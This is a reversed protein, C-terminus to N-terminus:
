RLFTGLFLQAFHSVTVDGAALPFPASLRDSNALLVFVLNRNPLVLLLSSYADPLLSFSWVVPEGRYVQVFWGLGTPVPRGTSTTQRTWARVRSADTVLVGDLVATAFAAVDRASAVLGTSATLGVAKRVAPTTRGRRDVRYSTAAEDMISAYRELAAGSFRTRSESGTVLLDSGPVSRRMALRDLIEVSVVEALTNDFCDALVPTLLEFRASDYWYGAGPSVHSLLDTLTLGPKAEPHWPEVSGELAVAGMEVCKMALIGSISQTLGGVDFPTDPLVPLSREANRVGLGKEWAVVGDQVIVAALGPIAAQKRLSELYREFLTLAFNQASAGPTLLAIV